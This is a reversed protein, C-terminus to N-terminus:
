NKNEIDQNQKIDSNDTLNKTGTASKNIVNSDIKNRNRNRDEIIRMFHYAHQYYNESLSKDGSSLAEKALTSYKEFLKEASLAPRFKNRNQENSFSGSGMRSQPNGNGRSMHNRENTRPKFRRPKRQFM